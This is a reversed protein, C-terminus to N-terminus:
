FFIERVADKLTEPVALGSLRRLFEADNATGAQMLENFIRDKYEMVTWARDLLEVTEAKKDNDASKLGSICLRINKNVPKESVLIKLCHMKEDYICDAIEEGTIEPNGCPEVGYLCLEYSRRDPILTLDGSAADINIICDKGEEWKMGIHTNVFAGNRYDMSIGDDEYLTYDGSSGAGFLIKLAKPNDTGNVRDESSGPLISGAKHLVPIGTLPRYLKRISGNGNYIHGTFIDYWRGEPIYADVPAMQLMKDEPETIACVILSGGFVYENPVEYAERVEPYAYYLPQLMPIDADYAKRAETYLYPVLRHRLRLFEAMIAHYPEPLKWPEKNFFPSNSSHIRMIPSFVGFQIWRILRENDKDGLMHGGIDHSWWGYGINSATATFYPQYALSRWTSRTDGSFGIPYRHSGPGAYRSFIMPRKGREEQDKYHYHNLLFLPDVRGASGTGQQWDIWWFAVGDDEYPHLVEEFYAERFKPDSMDFEVPEETDPDIGLRKATQRYMAEFARIGDAPHLNLTPALKRDNLMKLFRKYDPFCEEDWTYGTWGTGYKPDVGTLHWDMDIVAVSLPIQEEEFHDLLETYSDETYRFYRSWWNGLAYRPILPTKGCLNFFSKLGGYYDRGYGFFYLDKREIGSNRYEGDECVASTSDDLVAYGNRGFIGPELETFGDTMDLTRATGHMNGDSNGYVVSYHWVAGTSKLTISLGLSSFPMKDYELKLAETEVTLRGSRDTVSVESDPFSDFDRNVVTRTMRDEFLGEKQYELRILRDTLVTIRYDPGTIINTKNM